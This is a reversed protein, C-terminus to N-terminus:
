FGKLEKLIFTDGKLDFSIYSSKVLATKDKNNLDLLQVNKAKGVGTNYFFQIEEARLVFNKHDIEAAGFLQFFGERKNVKTSDQAHYTFQYGKNEFAVNKLAMRYVGPEDKKAEYVIQNAKIIKQVSISKFPQPIKPNSLYVGSVQVKVLDNPLLLDKTSKDYIMELIYTVGKSVFLARQGYTYGSEKYNGIIIGTLTKGRLQKNVDADQNLPISKKVWSKITKGKMIPRRADDQSKPFQSLDKKVRLNTVDVIKDVEIVSFSLLLTCLLPISGLYMLKMSQRSSNCFLMKIREKLPNKVFNQMITLQNQRIAMNLLIDAYAKSGVKLSTIQDAEFEHIQILARHYLFVVPNFWLLSKCIMLLVTDLSHYRSAHVGEHELFAYFESEQFHQDDVFVYNFFSCNTFGKHKSIVKLRGVQRPKVSTYKLMSLVQILFLTLSSIVGTWYGIVVLAKWDVGSQALGDSSTMKSQDLSSNDLLILKPGINNDVENVIPSNITRNIQLELAPIVFSALLTAVLYIRNLNFFTLKRFGFYYLVFFTAMCTSVKLLYYIWEM